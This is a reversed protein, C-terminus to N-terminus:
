GEPDSLDAFAAKMAGATARFRSRPMKTRKTHLMSHATIVTGVELSSKLPNASVITGNGFVAVDTDGVDDDDEPDNFALEFRTPPPAQMSGNWFRLMREGDHRTWFMAQPPTLDEVEDTSTTGAGYLTPADPAEETAVDGPNPTRAAQREQEQKAKPTAISPPTTNLSRNKHQVFTPNSFGDFCIERLATTEDLMLQSLCESSNFWLSRDRSTLGGGLRTASDRSTCTFRICRGPLSTFSTAFRLWRHLGLLMKQEENIAHMIEDLQHTRALHGAPIFLKLKEAVSVRSRHIARSAIMRLDAETGHNAIAKDLSQILSEPPTFRGPRQLTTGRSRAPSPSGTALSCPM